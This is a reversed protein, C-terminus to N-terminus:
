HSVRRDEADTLNIPEELKAAKPGDSTASPADAHQHRAREAELEAALRDREAQLAGAAEQTQAIRRRRARAQRIGDLTMMLGVVCVAGAIAGVVVLWGPSITFTRSLAHASITTTNQVVVDVVFGAALLAIVIGLIFMIPVEVV